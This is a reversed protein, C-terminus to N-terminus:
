ESLLASRLIPSENREVIESCMREFIDGDAPMAAAESAAAAGHTMNMPAANSSAAPASSASSAAAMGRTMIIPAPASLEDSAAAIARTRKIPAPDSSSQSAAPTGHTMKAFSASSSSTMMLPHQGEARASQDPLRTQPGVEESALAAEASSLVDATAVSDPRAAHLQDQRSSTGDSCVADVVAEVTPSDPEASGTPGDLPKSAAAEETAPVADPADAADAAPADQPAPTPERSGDLLACFAAGDAPLATSAAAETGGGGGSSSSSSSSGRAAQPAPGRPPARSGVGMAARMAERQDEGAFGMPVSTGVSSGAASGPGMQVDQKSRNRVNTDAHGANLPASPAVPSELDQSSRRAHLLCPQQAALQPAGALHHDNLLMSVARAEAAADGGAGTAAVCHASVGALTRELSKLLESRGRSQRVSRRIGQTTSQEQQQLLLGRWLILTRVAFIAVIAAYPDGCRWVAASEVSRVAWNQMAAVDSSATFSASSDGTDHHCVHRFTRDACHVLQWTGLWCVEGPSTAVLADTATTMRRLAEDVSCGCAELPRLPHLLLATYGQLQLMVCAAGSETGDGSPGVVSARREPDGLLQLAAWLAAADHVELAALVRIALASLRAPHPAPAFAEGFCLEVVFKLQLLRGSWLRLFPRCRRPDAAKRWADELLRLVDSYVPAVSPTESSKWAAGTCPSTLGLAELPASSSSGSSAGAVVGGKAAVVGCVACLVRATAVYVATDAIRPVAQANDAVVARLWTSALTLPDRRLQEVCAPCHWACGFDGWLDGASGVDKTLEPMETADNDAHVGFLTDGFAPVRSNRGNVAWIRPCRYFNGM